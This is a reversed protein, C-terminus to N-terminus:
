ENIGALDIGEKYYTYLDNNKVLEIKNSKYLYFYFNSVIIIRVENEKPFDGIKPLENKNVRKLINKYNNASKVYDKIRKNMALIEEDNKNFDTVIGGSYCGNEKSYVCLIGENYFIIQYNEIANNLEIFITEIKENNENRVDYKERYIREREASYSEYMKYSSDYLWKPDKESNNTNCSCLLIACIFLLIRYKMNNEKGCPTCRGVAQRLGAM